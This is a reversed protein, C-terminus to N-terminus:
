KAAPLCDEVRICGCRLGSEIAAKMQQAKAIVADIEALKAEALPRWQKGLASRGKFGNFLAKIESLTFGVSQAFRAVRIMDVLEEGYRRQGNVRSAPPLIGAEEYYRLASPRMGALRAVEGITLESM